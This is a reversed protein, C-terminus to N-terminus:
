VSGLLLNIYFSLPKCQLFAPWNSTFRHNQALLTRDAPERYLAHSYPITTNTSQSFQAVAAASWYQILSCLPIWESQGERAAHLRARHPERHAEQYWGAQFCMSLSQYQYIIITIPIPISIFSLSHVPDCMIKVRNHSSLIHSSSMVHVWILIKIFIYLLLSQAPVQAAHIARLRARRAHADQADEHHARHRRRGSVPPRRVGAGGDVDARRAAVRALVLVHVPVLLLLLICFSLTPRYVLLWGVLIVHFQLHLCNLTSCRLRPTPVSLFPISYFLTLTRVTEKLQVQNIKIRYHRSRFAANFVFRDREEIEKGQCWM